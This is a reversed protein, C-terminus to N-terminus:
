RRGPSMCRHRGRQSRWQNVTATNAVTAVASTDSSAGYEDDDEDIDGGTDGHASGGFRKSLLASSISTHLCNIWCNGTDAASLGNGCSHGVRITDSLHGPHLLPMASFAPSSM